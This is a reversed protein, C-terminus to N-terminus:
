SNKNMLNQIFVSVFSIVVLISSISIALFYISKPFVFPTILSIFLAVAIVVALPFRANLEQQNLFVGEFLVNIYRLAGVAIIWVPMLDVICFYICLLCVYFADVEMDFYKGFDTAQDRAKALYGDFFDLIVFTILSFAILVTSIEHSFLFTFILISLRTATVYNAWGFSPKLQSAFTLLATISNLLLCIALGLLMILAHGRNWLIITNVKPSEKKFEL